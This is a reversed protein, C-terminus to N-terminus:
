GETLGFLVKSPVRKPNTVGLKKNRREPYKKMSNSIVPDSNKESNRTIVRNISDNPYRAVKKIIRIEEKALMEPSKSALLDFLNIPILSKPFRKGPWPPTRSLISLWIIQM